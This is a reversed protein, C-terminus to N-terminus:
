LSMLDSYQMRSQQRVAGEVSVFIMAVLQITKSPHTQFSNAILVFRINSFKVQYVVNNTMSSKIYEFQTINDNQTPDNGELLGSLKPLVSM